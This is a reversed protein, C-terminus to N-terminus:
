SSTTKGAHAPILRIRCTHSNTSHHKGRTLPSSGALDGCDLDPARNEGRSRPHARSGAPRRSEPRTKGAHAPILGKRHSSVDGHLPKGRTLPSSGQVISRLFDNAGNEGRSRPHAWATPPRAPRPLTKGAHAPILRTNARPMPLSCPKGRTLPSSGSEDRGSSFHAANEGRSRPHAETPDTASPLGPTKGAHAPILRCHEALLVVPHRKGRTLPSSGPSKGWGRPRSLNEGRSRPHAARLGGRICRSRTKGAHAPILRWRRLKQDRQPRKGRTLPSSGVATFHALDSM